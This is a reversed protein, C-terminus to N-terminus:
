DRWESADRGAVVVINVAEGASTLFLDSEGERARLLAVSPIPRILTRALVRAPLEARRNDYVVSTSASDLGANDRVEVVQYGYGQLLRALRQGAGDVSTGNIVQLRVGGNVAPDIGRLLRDVLAETADSDAEEGVYRREDRGGKFVGETPVTELEIRERDVAVALQALKMVMGAPINTSVYKEMERVMRPLKFVAGFDFVEDVVSRLFAQQRHIRNIDGDSRYRVYHLAKEGRLRQRGPKLDIYLDQYPDSYNMPKDIDVEVGGLMDVIRKFGDYDLTVYYHVPEDLFGRVTQLSRPPGGYAHAHTIKDWSPGDPISVLTDRPISLVGVGNTLPDISVVMMTDSRRVGQVSDVGMVLVNIREDPRPEAVAQADLKRGGGGGEGQIGSIFSLLSWTMSAVFLIVLGAFLVVLRLWLPWGGARPKAERRGRRESREPLPRGSVPRIEQESVPRIPM